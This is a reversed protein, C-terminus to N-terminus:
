HSIIEWKLVELNSRNTLNQIKSFQEEEIGTKSTNFASEVLEKELLLGVMFIQLYGILIDRAVLIVKHYLSLDIM